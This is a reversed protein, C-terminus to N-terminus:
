FRIRVGNAAAELYAGARGIHQRCSIAQIGGALLFGLGVVAVTNNAQTTGINPALTTMFVGIGSFVISRNYGRTFKKMELASLSMMEKTIDDSSLDVKNKYVISKSPKVATRVSDGDETVAELQTSSTTPEVIPEQINGKPETPDDPLDQSDSISNKKGIFVQDAAIASEIDLKYKFMTQEDYAILFVRKAENVEQLKVKYVRLALDCVEYYRLARKSLNERLYPVAQTGDECNDFYLSVGESYLENNSAQYTEAKVKTGQYDELDAYRLVQGYSSSLVFGLLLAYYIRMIDFTIFLLWVIM